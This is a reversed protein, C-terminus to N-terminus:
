KSGEAKEIAARALSIERTNNRGLVDADFAMRYLAEKLAELLDPAALILRADEPKPFAAKHRIDISLVTPGCLAEGHGYLTLDDAVLHKALYPISEPEREGASSDKMDGWVWPGRTYSM